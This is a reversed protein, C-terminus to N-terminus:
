KGKSRDSISGARRRKGSAAAQGAPEGDSTKEIPERSEVVAKMSALGEEYKDGIMKEMNMFLCFAKEVFTNDGFMSWTVVTQDGEPKFTFETTATDEFPKLFHLKIRIVDSPQSVTITMSGEGVNENGAWRFVADKGESPGEYTGKSNPDVKLWPSWAEWKHFDNVQAFVDAAPAAIKASREVRFDNPQMAVIGVFAIIIVGLVIFTRVVIKKWM